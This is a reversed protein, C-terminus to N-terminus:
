CCVPKRAISARRAQPQEVVCSSCAATPRRRAILPTHKSCLANDRDEYHSKRRSHRSSRNPSPQRGSPADHYPRRDCSLNCTGVRGEAVVAAVAMAAHAKQIWVAVNVVEVEAWPAWAEGEEQGAAAAAAAAAALVSAIELHRNQHQNTWVAM